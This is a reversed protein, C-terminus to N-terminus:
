FGPRALPRHRNQRRLALVPGVSRSATRADGLSNLGSGVGGPGGAPGARACAGPVPGAPVGDSARGRVRTGKRGVPAGLRRCVPQASSAERPARSNRDDYFAHYCFAGIRRLEAARYRNWADPSLGHGSASLAAGGLFDRYLRAAIRVDPDRETKADDGNGGTGATLRARMWDYLTEVESEDLREAADLCAHHRVVRRAHALMDAKVLSSYFREGFQAWLGVGYEQVVAELGAKTMGGLAGFVPALRMVPLGEPEVEEPEDDSPLDDSPEDESTDALVADPEDGVSAADPYAHEPDDVLGIEAVLARAATWSRRCAIGRKSLVRREREGYGASGSDTRRDCLTLFDRRTQLRFLLGPCRAREHLQRFTEFVRWERVATGLAETEWDQAPEGRSQLEGARRDVSERAATAWSALRAHVDSRSATIAGEFLGTPLVPAGLLAFM